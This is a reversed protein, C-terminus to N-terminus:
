LRGRRARRWTRSCIDSAISWADTPDRIDAQVAPHTVLMNHVYPTCIDQWDQKAQGPDLISELINWYPVQGRMEIEIHRQVRQSQLRVPDM